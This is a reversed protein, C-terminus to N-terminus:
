KDNVDIFTNKFSEQFKMSCLGVHGDRIDDVMTACHATFSDLTSIEEFQEQM